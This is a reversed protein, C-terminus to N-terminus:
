ALIVGMALAILVAFVLALGNRWLTFSLGFTEKELPFTVVGVMTLTTLFAVGPVMSAGAEVFSAVLPFAVFAPILTISGLLTGLFVGSWQSAQGLSSEILSPPIFALLVGLLLLIGGISSLMSRMMRSSKKMSALSKKRDVGFSIILGLAALVLFVLTFIDM